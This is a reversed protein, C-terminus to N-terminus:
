SSNEKIKNLADTVLKKKIKNSLDYNKLLNEADGDYSRMLMFLTNFGSDHNKTENEEIYLNCHSDLFEEFLTITMSLNIKGMSLYAQHFLPTTTYNQIKEFGKESKIEGLTFMWYITQDDTMDTYSLLKEEYRKDHIKEAFKLANLNPYDLNSNILNIIEEKSQEFSDDTLISELQIPYVEDNNM